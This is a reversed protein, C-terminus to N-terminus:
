TWAEAIRLMTQALEKQGIQLLILATTTMQLYGWAWIEDEAVNTLECLFRSRAHGKELPNAAYEEPWERMLVGVDYSKEFVKGDPDILKYEMTGPVNLMNNAHADGHVWVYAAPNTKKELWHAYQLATDVVSCLCPKEQQSWASPIFTKFWHYNANTRGAESATLPLQWTKLLSDCLIRMQEKASKGSSSLPTGLKELLVARKSADAAYVRCYGNGNARELMDVGQQFYIEDYDPLEIKLIQELGSEDICSGILAHSGGHLVDTVRIKWASELQVIMSDLQALWEEGARGLAKARGVVQSPLKQHWQQM